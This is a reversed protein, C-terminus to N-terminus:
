CIFDTLNDDIGHLVPQIKLSEMPTSTLIHNLLMEAALPRDLPFDAWILKKGQRYGRYDSPPQYIGIGPKDPYDNEWCWTVFQSLTGHEMLAADIKGYHKQMFEAIQDYIFFRQAHPTILHQYELGAERMARTYGECQLIGPYYNEHGNFIAINRLGSGIFHRTLRYAAAESDITVCPIDTPVSVHGNIIAPLKLIKTQELFEATLWGQLIIGICDKAAQIVELGFDYSAIYHLGIGRGALYRRTRDLALGPENENKRRVSIYLIKSNFTGNDINRTLYNGLGHKREILGDAELDALARRMTISSCNLSEVLQREPPLREGSKLNSEAILNLIALRAQNYKLQKQETKSM